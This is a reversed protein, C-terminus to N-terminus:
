NYIDLMGRKLGYREAINGIMGKKPNKLKEIIM